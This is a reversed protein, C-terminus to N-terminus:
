SDGALSETDIKRRDEDRLATEDSEAVKEVRIPGKDYSSMALDSTTSDSDRNNKLVEDLSTKQPTRKVSDSKEVLEDEKAPVDAIEQVVERPSTDSKEGLTKLWQKGAGTWRRGSAILEKAKTEVRQPIQKLEFKQPVAEDM